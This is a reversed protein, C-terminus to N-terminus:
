HFSVGVRQPKWCCFVEPAFSWLLSHVFLGKTFLDRQDKPQNIVAHKKNLSTQNIVPHQSRLFGKTLSLIDKQPCFDWIYANSSSAGFTTLCRLQGTPDPNTGLFHPFPLAAEVPIKEMIKKKCGLLFRPVIWNIGESIWGPFQRFGM